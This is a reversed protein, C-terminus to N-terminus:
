SRTSKKSRAKKTARKAPKATTGKEVPGDKMSAALAVALAADGAVFSEWAMEFGKRKGKPVLAFGESNITLTYPAGGIEIERKLAGDLKTTM